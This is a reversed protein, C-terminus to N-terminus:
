SIDGDICAVAYDKISLDLDPNQQLYSTITKQTGPYQLHGLGHLAGQICGTKKQCELIKCLTSFVQGQFLKYNPGIFLEADKEDVCSINQTLADWWMGALSVYEDLSLIKNFLEFCAEIVEIKPEVPVVLNSLVEELLGGSCCIIWLGQEIQKDSYETLLLDPQNFLLKLYGLTKEPESEYVVESDFYWAPDTIPKDFITVIWDDYKNSTLSVYNM